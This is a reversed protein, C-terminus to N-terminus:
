GPIPDGEAVARARALSAAIAAPDTSKEFLVHFEAFAPPPVEFHRVRFRLLGLRHLDELLGVFCRATFVWCHADVYGDRAKRAQDLGSELTGVRRLQGPALLPVWVPAPGRMYTSSYAEFVVAPPPRRRAELWAGVLGEVTTLPRVLDFCRRKDPLALAIVGDPTLAAALDDLWGLLDPVHEGVHIGVAFDFPAAAAVIEHVPRVGDLVFDVPVIDEPRIRPNDAYKARLDETSVHDLNFVEVGAVGKLFPRSLAGIEIGRRGALAYDGFVGAVRSYGEAPPPAVAPLAAAPLRRAPAAAAVRAPAPRREALDLACARGLRAFLKGIAAKRAPDDEAAFLARLPAPQEPGVGVVALGHGHAFDFLPHRRRLAEVLRWVGFGREREATDHLLIVGRRSLKPAWTEVDASVAEFSHLGDIHLLDITGDRFHRAASAFDERLLTSFDAYTERNTRAVAQWVEEGYFGAHADGQWTDIAYARVPHKERRLAQCFGFYSTGHHTGLEVFVGPKMADVIWFAFPLHEVWASPALYAPAELLAEGVHRDFRTDGAGRGTGPDSVRGTGLSSLMERIMAGM